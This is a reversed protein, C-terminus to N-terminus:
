HNKSMKKIALKSLMNIGLIFVILVTATQFSRDVSIGEAILLYLHVSLTRTSAFLGTTLNFNSGMTYILAATEGLARGIALIIGSTIAPMAAPLVVKFITQVKTAGLALSGEHLAISVSKIAEQSTRIITPLIMLAMTLSGSLLSIKWGLLEVFVLMGFLGFIISPIGALTETGLTLLKILKGEKGYEVLYIAGFLGAPLAFLLTLLIMFLTNLIISSIGGYKGSETPKEFLYRLKLNQGIERRKVKITDINRGKLDLSWWAPALGVAGSTYELEHLFSEKDSAFTELEIPIVSLHQGGIESWYKHNGKLASFMDNEDISGLATNGYLATVTGNCFVSQIRLNALEIQKQQKSSLSQIATDYESQLILAVGGPSAATAELAEKATNSYTALRSEKGFITIAHEKQSTEIYSEIDIKRTTLKKWSIEKGTFIRQLEQYTLDKAESKKNVVVVMNDINQSKESTVSYEYINSYMFGKVIIFGLILFLIGITIAAASYVFGLSLYESLRRKHTKM